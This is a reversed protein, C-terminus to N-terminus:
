CASEASISAECSTRPCHEPLQLVRRAARDQPCAHLVATQRERSNICSDEARVRPHYPSRRKSSRSFLGFPAAVGPWGSSRSSEQFFIADYRFRSTLVTCRHSLRSAIGTCRWKCSLSPDTKAYRESSLAHHVVRRARSACSLGISFSGGARIKSVASSPRSVVARRRRAVLGIRKPTAAAIM